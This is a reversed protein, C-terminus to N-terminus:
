AKAEDEPYGRARLLGVRDTEVIRMFLPKVFVFHRRKDDPTKTDILVVTVGKPLVDSHERYWIWGARAASSFGRAMVDVGNFRAAGFVRYM